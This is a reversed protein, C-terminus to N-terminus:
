VGVIAKADYLANATHKRSWAGYNRSWRFGRKKLADIVSQAPKEDHTIIVRDNDISISGGEFEITEFSEKVAIRNKMTLVKDRLRKIKANNNTLIFSEFGCNGYNDPEMIVSISKESLYEGLQNRKEEDSLSKKKVIKNVAKMLEQRQVTKDYEKLANDLDEEPSPTPVRFVATIYKKRWGMWNEYASQEYGMNKQNRAVPFNAPGTIMWSMCRSKAGLWKQAHAIYKERYGGTSGTEDMIKKLDAGLQDEIWEVTDKARREPSFSTGSFARHALDYLGDIKTSNEM